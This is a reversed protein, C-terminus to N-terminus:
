LRRLVPRWGARISATTEGDPDRIEAEVVIETSRREAIRGAIRLPTEIPTPRRLSVDFRYTLFPPHESWDYGRLENVLVAGTHCDLLTAVIGGNAIGYGNEYIAPVTVTAVVEDGSPFSRLGLGVPNAPGCGFCRGAPHFLEQICRGEAGGEGSM